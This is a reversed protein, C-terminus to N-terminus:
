QPRELNTTEELILLQQHIISAHVPQCTGGRMLENLSIGNGVNLRHHYTPLNIQALAPPHSAEIISQNVNVHENPRKSVHKYITCLAM